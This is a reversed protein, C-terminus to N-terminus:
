DFEIAEGLLPPFLFDKFGGGLCCNPHQFFFDWSDCGVSSRHNKDVAGVKPKAKDKPVDQDALFIWLLEWCSLDAPFPSMVHIVHGM